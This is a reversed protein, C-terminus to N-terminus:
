PAFFVLSAEFLLTESLQLTNGGHCWWCLSYQLTKAPLSIQEPIVATVVVGHGTQFKITFNSFLLSLSFFGWYANGKQYM